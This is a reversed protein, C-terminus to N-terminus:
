SKSIVQALLAAADKSLVVVRVTGSALDIAGGTVNSLQVTVTDAATVAATLTLDAVDLSFSVGAVADGLVVGPVSIDTVAEAATAISGPDWVASGVLIGKISNRVRTIDDVLGDLIEKLSQNKAFDSDSIKSIASM